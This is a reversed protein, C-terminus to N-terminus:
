AVKPERKRFAVFADLFKSNARQIEKWGEYDELGLQIPGGTFQAPTPPSALLFLVQYPSITLFQKTSLPSTAAPTPGFHRLHSHEYIQVVIRSLASLNAHRTVAANRANKGATRSYLTVVIIACKYCDFRRSLYHIRVKALLCWRARSM